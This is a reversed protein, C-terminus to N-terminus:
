YPNQTANIIQVKRSKLCKNLFSHRLLLFYFFLLSLLLVVVVVVLLLLLLKKNNNIQLLLCFLLPQPLFVCVHIYTYSM